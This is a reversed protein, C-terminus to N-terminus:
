FRNQNLWRYVDKNSRPKCALLLIGPQNTIKYVIRLRARHGCRISMYGDLAATLRKGAEGKSLELQDIRKQVMMQEIRDLSEVDRGFETTFDIRM